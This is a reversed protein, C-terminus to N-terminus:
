IFRKSLEKFRPHGASKLWEFFVMERSVIEINHAMMRLIAFEKDLMSRSGIADSVVFVEYDRQALEIASQLVCVHAEIGILVLQKKPQSKLFHNMGETNACSFDVKSFSQFACNREAQEMVETLTHGLGKPYHESVCVPVNLENALETLSIQHQLIQEHGAILPMLKQQVDIILLASNEQELLMTNHIEWKKNFM